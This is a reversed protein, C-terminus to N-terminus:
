DREVEITIRAGDRPPDPLEFTYVQRARDWGAAVPRLPEAWYSLRISGETPRMSESFHVAITRRQARGGVVPGLSLVRPATLDLQSGGDGSPGMGSRVATSSGDCAAIGVCIGLVSFRLKRM